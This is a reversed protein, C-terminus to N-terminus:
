EGPTPPTPAPTGQHFVMQWQGDCWKWISSRLSRAPQHSPLRWTLLQYTALVVGPALVQARFDAMTREIPQERELMEMVDHKDFVRGSSGIELFGEAILENVALPRSRVEAQM